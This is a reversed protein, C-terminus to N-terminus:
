SRRRRRRLMLVGGLALLSLTAPEPTESVPPEPAPPATWGWEARLVAFDDVDVDGDGDFDCAQDPARVGLQTDFLALDLEDVV